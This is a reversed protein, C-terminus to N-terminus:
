LLLGADGLDENVAKVIPTIKEILEVSSMSNMRAVHDLVMCLVAAAMEPSLKSISDIMEAVRDMATSTEVNFDDIDTTKTKEM